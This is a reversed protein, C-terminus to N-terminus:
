EEIPDHDCGWKYGGCAGIKLKTVAAEHKAPDVGPRDRLRDSRLEQRLEAVENALRALGAALRELRNAIQDSRAEPFVFGRFEPWLALAQDLRAVTWARGQRLLKAM